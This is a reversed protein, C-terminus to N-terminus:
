SKEEKIEDISIWLINGEKDTTVVATIIGNKIYGLHITHQSDEQKDKCDFSIFCNNKTNQKIKM